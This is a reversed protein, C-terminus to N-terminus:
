RCNGPPPLHNFNNCHLIWLICYSNRISHLASCFWVKMAETEAQIAEIKGALEALLAGAADGMSDKAAALKLGELDKVKSELLKLDGSM